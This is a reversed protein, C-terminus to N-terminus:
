GGKTRKKLLEPIKIFDPRGKPYVIEALYGGRERDRKLALGATHTAFLGFDRRPFCCILEGEYKGRNSIFKVNTWLLRPPPVTWGKEWRERADSLVCAGHERLDSDIEHRLTLLDEAGETQAPGNCAIVYIALLLTAFIVLTAFIAELFSLKKETFFALKDGFVELTRGLSRVTVIAANSLWQKRM